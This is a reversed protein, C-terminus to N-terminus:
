TNALLTLESFVENWDRKRRLRVQQNNYDNIGERWIPERKEEMAAFCELQHQCWGSLHALVDKLDWEGFRLNNRKDPPAKSILMLSRNIVKELKTLKKKM